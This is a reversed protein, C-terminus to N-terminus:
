RRIRKWKFARKNGAGQKVRWRQMGARSRCNSSCFQQDKRAALFITKCAQCNHLNRGCRQLVRALRILLAGDAGRIPSQEDGTKVFMDLPFVPVLGHPGIQLSVDTIRIPSYHNQLAGDIAERVQMQLGELWQWWGEHQKGTEIHHQTPWHELYRWSRRETQTLPSGSNASDPRSALIALTLLDHWLSLQDESNLSPLHMDRFWIFWNANKELGAGVRMLAARFQSESSELRELGSRNSRSSIM